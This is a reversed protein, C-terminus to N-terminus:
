TDWGKSLFLKKDRFWWRVQRKGNQNKLEINSRSKLIMANNVYIEEGTPTRKKTIYIPPNGEMDTLMEAKLTELKSPINATSILYFNLKNELKCGSCDSVWTTYFTWKSIPIVNFRKIRQLSFQRVVISLHQKQREM